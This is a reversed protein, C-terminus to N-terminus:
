FCKGRRLLCWCSYSGMAVFPLCAVFMAWGMLRAIDTPLPSTFGLANAAMGMSAAGVAYGLRQITPMASAIREADSSTASRTAFRLIAAWAMGFGAGQMTAFLAILWLPGHPVSIMFGPPSCVILTMGVAILAPDRREGLGSASIAAVSWGISSAAVLYGAMLASTGHLTIILVPGYIYLPISGATFCFVMLLAAGHRRRVDFVGPPLLAFGAQSADRRFFWVLCSVGILVLLPSSVPGISIGAAAISTVGASLSLLRWVPFRMATNTTDDGDAGHENAGHADKGAGYGDGAARGDKQLVRYLGLALLAAQVAFFVFAGRWLGWGSFLGGVLPGFFASTGWVMSIAAIARAAFRRPFLRLVGLFSLAVLSGGGLGQALRGLLLLQMTPSVASLVCGLGYTVAAMTMALRLGVRRQLLVSSAGAVISGVEYLAFNWATLNAGGIDALMDPIITSVMLGDAAHLWVGFCLLTLQLGHGSSLLDRFSVSPEAGPTM